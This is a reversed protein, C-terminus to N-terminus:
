QIRKPRLIEPLVPEIPEDGTLGKSVLITARENLYAQYAAKPVKTESNEWIEYGVMALADEFKLGRKCMLYAIVITASRSVGYECHVLVAGPSEFQLMHDIFECIRGMHILLDQTSSDVCLLWKHRDEPVYQQTLAMQKSYPGATVAGPIGLFLGPEIESMSPYTKDTRSM